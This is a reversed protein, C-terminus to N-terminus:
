HTRWEDTFNKRTYPHKEKRLKNRNRLIEILESSVLTNNIIYNTVTLSFNFVLM